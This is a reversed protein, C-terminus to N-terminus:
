IRYIREANACFLKHREAESLDSVIAAFAQWVAAYTSFLKDVPFNSAFMVRDTGFADLTELVLPRISERTWKTDLMGLGSVKVSVNDRRALQRMGDRWRRWGELNRDAWMGAHNLVFATDPHAAALAAGAQMQTPYIQLDFSLGHRRLQAFGERWAPEDMYDRAVYNYLPSTHRNLIQRVGRVAPFAAQADLRAAADAASLDANVVLGLPIPIRDAVAQMYRTEGIPDVPIAEVHVAKVIEVEAGGEALYEEILYSRAIPENSGVFGTSPKEFHPYNGTALDWVHFHPDVVSLRAM